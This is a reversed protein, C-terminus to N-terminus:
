SSCKSFSTQKFNFCEKFIRWSKYNAIKWPHSMSSGHTHSHRHTHTGSHGNNIVLIRNHHPSPLLYLGLTIYIRKNECYDCYDFKLNMLGESEYRTHSPPCEKWVMLIKQLAHSNHKYFKRSVASLLAQTNSDKGYDRRSDVGGGGSSYWFYFASLFTSTDWGVYPFLM